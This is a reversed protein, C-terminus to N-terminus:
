RMEAEAPERSPKLIGAIKGADSIVSRDLAILALTYVLAGLVICSLLVMHQPMAGSLRNVAVLVCGSMILAATAAPWIQRLYLGPKVGTLMQVNHAYKSIVLAAGAVLAWAVFGIGWKVVLLSGALGLVTEVALLRLRLAPRGLAVLVSSMPIYVSQLLAVISLAQLVPISPRWTEGFAVPILVSAIAFLGLFLPWTLISSYRAVSIYSQRLESMRSQLRSFLSWSVRGVSQAVTQVLLLYLRSALHYYGLVTSGLFSGIILVVGQMRLFGVFNSGMQSAGFSFLERAHRLSFDFGPRWSSVRWLVALMVLQFSLDRIVLSWIGLGSIATSIGIIGSIPAAILLRKSLSDFSMKRTLIQTQVQTLAGFLVTLSMWKIVPALSPEDFMSAIVGSFGILVGTLAIGLISNIWFATDLHRDELEERQVIASTLGSSILLMSLRTFVGALAFIGFSEPAVLRALVFLVALSTVQQGFRAFLSWIVGSITKRKLDKM